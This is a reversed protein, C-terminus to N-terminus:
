RLVAEMRATVRARTPMLLALTALSAACLTLHIGLSGDLLLQAFGFVTPLLALSWLVLHGGLLHRRLLALDPVTILAAMRKPTIVARDVWITALACFLGLSALVRTLMSVGGAHSLSVVPSAILGMGAWALSTAVMLAWSYRLPSLASEVHREFDPHM